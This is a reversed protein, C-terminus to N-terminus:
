RNGKKELLFISNKIFKYRKKSKLENVLKFLAEDKGKAELMIDFNQNVNVKDLFSIFDDVNIYEHHARFEINNKPSSFHIKPILSDNNWTDFIKKIYKKIDEGNNLCVHHHYDLVMPINLKKCLKLTDKMTFCKDDNELIILKKLDEDLLNFNKVFRKIAESKNPYMSGIHLVLKGNINLKRLMTQHFKLINISSCVVNEYISNLVCFEEVHFDVRMNNENILKGIELFKNDYLNVWDYDVDPHTALPILTSTARYFYIENKLNYKLIELFSDLNKNIIEDLKKYKTDNDLKCYNKYTITHSPTINLRKSISVYGLRIIM